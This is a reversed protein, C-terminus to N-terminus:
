VDTKEVLKNINSLLSIPRYNSCQLDSGKGKYIPITKSKKLDEIYIGTKFSLNIIDSLTEAIIPSIYKLINTPISHPGIAKEDNLKSILKSVEFKDTPNLYLSNVNKHSLYTKFDLNDTCIKDRLNNAITSFYSNFENAIQIPDSILRNDILLSNPENKVTNKIDIVSKIGLWSKRLDNSNNRFYNRYYLTKSNRCIDVIHNRLEKYNNHYHEKLQLSKAKIYM